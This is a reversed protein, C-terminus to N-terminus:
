SSLMAIRAHREDLMTQLEQRHENKGIFSRLMDQADECADLTAARSIASHINPFSFSAKQNTETAERVDEKEEDIAEEAKTVGKGDFQEKEKRAHLEKDCGRRMRFTNTKTMTIEGTGSSSHIEPDFIIGRADVWKGDQNKRPWTAETEETAPKTKNQEEPDQRDDPESAPQQYWDKDEPNGPTAADALKSAVSSVRSVNEARETTVSEPTIDIIDRTEDATPLGMLLEPAYQRGWWSAARYRLMLEPISRWKSDNKGFWGETVAMKMSVAPGDLRDGTRREFAYAFCSRDRISVTVTRRRKQGNEWATEVYEVEEFEGEESLDYRLPSFRGCGNVAAIVMQSRWSPRGHIIDLNQMVMLPSMNMRQALELAIVASGLNADGQYEKPVLPSSILAKAMRQANEFAVMSSFAGEFKVLASGSDAAIMQRSDKEMDETM